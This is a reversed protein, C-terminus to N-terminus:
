AFMCIRYIGGTFAKGELRAGEHMNGVGLWGGSVQGRRIYVVAYRWGLCDFLGERYGYLLCDWALDGSLVEGRGGGLGM